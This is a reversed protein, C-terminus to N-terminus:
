EASAISGPDQGARWSEVLALWKRRRQWLLINTFERRYRRPRAAERIARKREQMRDRINRMEFRVKRLAYSEDDIQGVRHNLRARLMEFLLEHPLSRSPKGSREKVKIKKLRADLRTRMSRGVQHDFDRIRKEWTISNSRRPPTSM